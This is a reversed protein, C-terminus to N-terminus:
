VRIFRIALDTELTTVSCSLAIWQQSRISIVLKLRSSERTNEDTIRSCALFIAAKVNLAVFSVDGSM